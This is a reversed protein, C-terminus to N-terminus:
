KESISHGKRIPLLLNGVGCLSPEVNSGQRHPKSCGNVQSQHVVARDPYILLHTIENLSNFPRVLNRNAVEQRFQRDWPYILPSPM